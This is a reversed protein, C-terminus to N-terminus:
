GPITIAKAREMVEALAPDETHAALLHRGAPFVAYNAAKLVEELAGPRSKDAALLLIPRCRELTAGAGRLAELEMGNLDLKALDLRECELNDVTLLNVTYGGPEDHRVEQGIPQGRGSRRLELQGFLAPRTQDLVPTDIFGNMGGLAANVAGANLVNNLAINGCLAYYLREQPEFGVVKGWGTMHRAWEVTHVGVGAGGDLAVVGPGAHRAKLSVLDLALDVLDAEALSSRLLQVGEGAAEPESETAPRYDNVSVIMPGHGTAALVFPAPKAIRNM